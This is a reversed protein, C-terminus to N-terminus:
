KKAFTQKIQLMCSSVIIVKIEAEANNVMIGPGSIIKTISCLILLPFFYPIIVASPKTVPIIICVESIAKPIESSMLWLLDKNYVM